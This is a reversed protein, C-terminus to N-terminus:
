QVYIEALLVLVSEDAQGQDSCIRLEISDSTAAPLEVNFYPPNNFSCCPNGDMCNEGTWVRDLEDARDCFYNDGVESPPLPANVRNSSECPCQARRGAGFTWIHARSGSIGHTISVGDLYNDEITNQQPTFRYFADPSTLAEGIIRGGVKTYATSIDGSFASRCTSDAGACGRM